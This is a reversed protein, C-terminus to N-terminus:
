NCCCSRRSRLNSVAGRVIQRRQRPQCCVPAAPAAECGCASVPAPAPAAGCGCSSAAPVTVVPDASAMPASIIPASVISQGMVPVGNCGCNSQIPAMPAMSYESVVPANVITGEVIDSTVPATAVPAAEPVAIPAAEPTAAQATDAVAQVAEAAAAVPTADQAFSTGAILLTCFVAAFFKKM